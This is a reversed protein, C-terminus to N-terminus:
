LPKAINLSMPAGTGNENVPIAPFGDVLNTLQYNVEKFFSIYDAATNGMDYSTQGFEFVICKIKKAKLLKTAGKLVNLEGGEVDIKLFDIHEINNQTCYKDLTTCPVEIHQKPEIDFGHKKLPRKAQTNLGSYEVGYDYISINGEKTSLAINNTIINQNRAAKSIYSLREYTSPTPEFSHVFGKKGTFHSFLLSLEGANAGVDFIIFGPNIIDIYKSWEKKEIFNFQLTNYKVKNKFNLM